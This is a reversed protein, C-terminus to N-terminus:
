KHPVASGWGELSGTRTKRARRKLGGAIQKVLLLWGFESNGKHTRYADEM